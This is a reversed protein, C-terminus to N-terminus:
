GVCCCSYYYMFACLCFSLFYCLIHTICLIGETGEAWPVYPMGAGRKFDDCLSESYCFKKGKESPNHVNNCNEGWNNRLDVKAWKFFEEPSRRPGAQYREMDVLDLEKIKPEGSKGQLQPYIHLQKQLRLISGFQTPWQIAWDPADWFVPRLKSKSAIYLHSIIDADPHYLDYGWSWARVGMSTEEGDFLYPTYFDYPVRQIRHGRSFSFGAAFFAVRVPGNLPRPLTNM